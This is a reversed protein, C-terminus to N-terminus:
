GLGILKGGQYVVLTMVYALATTYGIQFALEKISGSERLFVAMASMCPMYLLVFVLFAYAALRSYAPDTGLRQRLSASGENSDKGVGYVTGMTAVVVEKAAFGSFIAIGLRWDFGLPKLAPEIAKGIYGAFSGELNEAAKLNAIDGLQSNKQEETIKGAEFDFSATKAITEYDQTYQKRQPFSM